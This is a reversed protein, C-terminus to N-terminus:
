YGYDEVELGDTIRSRSQKEGMHTVEIEVRRNRSRGWETANTEIPYNEGMGFSQIRNFAIGRSAIFAAVAHARSESLRQNYADSGLSDTHGYVTIRMEPYIRMLAALDSLIRESSPKLESKDFEFRINFLCIRIGTIDEGKVAMDRAESLSFCDKTFYPRDQKAETPAAEEKASLDVKKDERRKATRPKLDIPVGIHVSIELGRPLRLGAYIPENMEPNLVYSEDTREIKSFSNTLAHYVGVEVGLFVPHYDLWFPTITYDFGIGAYAGLIFTNFSADTVPTVLPPTYDSCYSIEGNLPLTFTPGVALYPSFRRNGLHFDALLRFDLEKLRISYDVDTWTLNTGRGIYQAEFVLAFWDLPRYKSFAGALWDIDYNHRYIDYVQNTYLMDTATAGGKVGVSLSPIPIVQASSMKASMLAALMLFFCVVSNIRVFRREKM